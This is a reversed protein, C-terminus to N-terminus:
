VADGSNAESHDTHTAGSEAEPLTKDQHQPTKEANRIDDELAKMTQRNVQGIATGEIITFFGFVIFAIGTVSMVIHENGSEPIHTFIYISAGVLATPVLYFWGSLRTPKSVFILLCLQFLAAFAILVGFMFGTIAVFANSFILMALGLILSAGSAVWGFITAFASARPRGEKNRSALFVTMNPLGAAVFLIGATLVVKGNALSTRFVLLLVGLLATTIGLLLLNRGKM